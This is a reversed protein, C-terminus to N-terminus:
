RLFISDMTVSETFREVMDREQVTLLDTPDMTPDIVSLLQKLLCSGYGEESGNVYQSINELLKKKHPFLDPFSMAKWGSWLILLDYQREVLDLAAQIRQEHNGYVELIGTFGLVPSIGIQQNSPFYALPHGHNDIVVGSDDGYECCWFLCVEPGRAPLARSELRFLDLNEEWRSTNISLISM